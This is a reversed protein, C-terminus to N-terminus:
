DLPRGERDLATVIEIMLRISEELTGIAVREDIGHVRRGEEAALSRPVFGYAVIGQDRFWHADTFGGIVRPVVLGPRSQEAAVREIARYLPTDHPSAATSFSLLAEVGVSDDDIVGEITRKFDECREGPLLRADLQARAEAPAVNTKPAGELVTISITNRILANRGPHSLFRQRFAADQELQDSLRLFGDRDPHAATPAMSAFMLAVEPVVRIPSEFRRIRDLAAILRPVAADPSPAASHGAHGHARLELWCPSKETLSVGWIPPSEPDMPDAPQIGGGETLLYGVNELLEPHHEVLWGAGLRGGTEEEPTALLILDRDLATKSEALAVLTLVQMVGVGKADLAGRGWVFGQRIEGSWPNVSWEEAQAPVTDLHSLLALAPRRRDAPLPSTLRAWLAARAPKGEAGPTKIIRAEIGARRLTKAYLLALAEENGPPNVTPIRIAESLLDAARNSVSGRHFLLDFPWLAHAEGTAGIGLATLLLFTAFGRATRQPPTRTAAGHRTQRPPTRTAAGHRTQRPPTRTAAGNRGIRQGDAECPLLSL